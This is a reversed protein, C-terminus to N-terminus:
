CVPILVVQSRWDLGQAIIEDYLEVTADDSSESTKAKDASNLKDLGVFHFQLILGINLEHKGDTVSPTNKVISTGAQRAWFVNIIVDFLDCM